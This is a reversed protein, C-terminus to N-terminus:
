PQEIAIDISMHYSGAPAGVPVLIAPWIHLYPQANNAYITGLTAAYDLPYAPKLTITITGTNSDFSLVLKANLTVTTGDDLTINIKALRFGLEDKAYYQQQATTQITGPYAFDAVTTDLDNTGASTSNSGDNDFKCSTGILVVEDNSIGSGSKISGDPDVVVVCVQVDSKQLVFSNTSPNYKLLLVPLTVRKAYTYAYWGVEDLSQNYFTNLFGEPLDIWTLQAGTASYQNQLYDSSNSLMISGSTGLM